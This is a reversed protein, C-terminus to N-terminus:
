QRALRLACANAERIIDEEGDVHGNRMVFKGNCLVSDISSSNASYVWNSVLNHRPNMFPDNLNVLIADALFGEQIKGANIGYAQAGGFTAMELVRNAPLTEASGKVKALLSAMKMDEHMDLNNNSSAGDTGIAMKINHNLMAPINTIGSSLKLNSCPNLVATANSAAFLEMDHETFHVCHAAILRENLAGYKDLLEVPTCGNNKKCEEVESETESLHTHLKIDEDKAFQACRKFLKESVTYIAHPMMVLQIRDSVGIRDHIFKFNDELAQPTVLNEAMTTGIAARIGMEDVVKITRERKWYMDAFFVTGTKIMELVALRSGIEIDDATIKAEFPWVYNNLWDFLPADDGYGRLLTMAAHTHANYFAPFIAFNECNVIEANDCDEATATGIKTFTNGDIVIDCQSENFTVSKLIIKNNM